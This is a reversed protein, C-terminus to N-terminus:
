RGSGAARALRHRDGRFRRGYDVDFFGSVYKSISKRLSLLGLNATYTTQGKELSYIAAERIHWPTVFDPEGVGLSIVDDRGVVLDFFDRIGSRPISAVHKAIKSSYDMSKRWRRPAVWASGVRRTLGFVALSAGRYDEDDADAGDMQRQIEKQMHGVARNTRTCGRGYPCFVRGFGHWCVWRCGSFDHGRVAAFDRDSNEAGGGLEAEAGNGDEGLFVAKGDMAELGVFGVLEIRGFPGDARIEIVLADHLERLGLAHRHDVRAVTEERFVGVEGTGARTLADNEDARRRLEQFVHAVLGGGARERVLEFDGGQGAGLLRDGIGVHRQRDRVLDPEREDDFRGESAASAAHAHHFFGRM